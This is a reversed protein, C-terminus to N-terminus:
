RRALADLVPTRLAVWAPLVGSVVGIGLSIGLALVQTEPLVAFTPFFRDLEPVGAVNFLLHSGLVGAFGGAGCVVVGEALFLAAITHGPFGLARLVGVELRREQGHLLLTNLAIMFAAFLVAGGIMSLLLPLNGWMSVFMQNFAAETLTRTRHDSSEFRADVARSLEAIDTGPDLELTFTSVSGRRGSNEDLYDWHFFMTSGDMQGSGPRYIGRVNFHWDGPFLNGILDIVDGPKWGYKLAIDEGVICGARDAEFADWQETPMLIDQRGAARDGFVARLERPQTAFRAFMNKEDIYVGGFWTWDCVERVGPFSRLEPEIKRPLFVFLSVASSVVVRNAGAAQVAGDLTTIVTRLMTLLFVALAVGASTLLVRLWANRLHAFFLRWPTM